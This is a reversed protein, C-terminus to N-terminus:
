QFYGFVVHGFGHGRGNGVLSRGKGVIGDPGCPRLPRDDIQGLVPHVIGEVLPFLGDGAEVAIGLQVGFEMLLYDVLHDGAHLLVDGDALDDGGVEQGFQVLLLTELVALEATGREGVVDEVVDLLVEVLGLTGLLYGKEVQACRVGDGSVEPEGRVDHFRGVPALLDGLESLVCLLLTLGLYPATKTLDTLSKKM